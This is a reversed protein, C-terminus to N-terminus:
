RHNLEDILTSKAKGDRALAASADGLAVSVETLEEIGTAIIGVPKRQGLRSAGDPLRLVRETIYNSYRSTLFVALLLGV